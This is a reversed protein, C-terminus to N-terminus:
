DIAPEDYGADKMMQVMTDYRAAKVRNTEVQLRLGETEIAHEDVIHKMATYEDDFSALKNVLEQTMDLLALAAELVENAVAASRPRQTARRRQAAQGVHTKYHSPISDKNISAFKCGPWKCGYLFSEDSMHHLNTTETLRETRIIIPDSM